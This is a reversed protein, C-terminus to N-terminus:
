KHDNPWFDPKIKQGGFVRCDVCKVNDSYLALLPPGPYYDIIIRPYDADDVDYITCILEPEYIDNGKTLWIEKTSTLSADIYGIVPISTDTICTINGKMETPIPGFIGGTEETNKKLNSFYEYADKSICNQKVKLYYLYSFRDSSPESKLLHTIMKNESLKDTAGVLINRSDNYRWCYLGLNPNDETYRIIEGTSLDKYVKAEIPSVSEWIENYFWKYYQSENQNTSELRLYADTQPADKRWELVEIDPTQQPAVFESQYEKSDLKIKLRYKENLNLKDISTIYEGNARHYLQYLEGNSSEIYIEADTIQIIESIDADIAVSRSLKISNEGETIFGEVVLLNSLGKIGSPSYEDICSHLLIFIFLIYLYVKKM